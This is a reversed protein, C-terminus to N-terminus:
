HHSTTKCKEREKMQVQSMKQSSKGKLTSITQKILLGDMTRGVASLKTTKEVLCKFSLFSYGISNELASIVDSKECQILSVLTNSSLFSTLGRLSDSLIVM